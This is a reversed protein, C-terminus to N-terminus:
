AQPGGPRTSAEKQQRIARKATQLGLVGIVLGVVGIGLALYALPGTVGLTNSISTTSNLMNELSNIRQELANLGAQAATDNASTMSRLATVEGRLEALQTQLQSVNGKATSMNSELDNLRQNISAIQTALPDTVTVSTTVSATQLLDSYTVSITKSGASGFSLTTLSTYTELSPVPTSGFYSFYHPSLVEVVVQQSLDYGASVTMTGINYYLDPGTPSLGLTAMVGVTDGTNATSQSLKATLTTGPLVWSRAYEQMNNFYSWLQLLYTGSALNTYLYGYGFGSWACGNDHSAQLVSNFYLRAEICDYASWTFSYDAEFSLGYAYGVSDASITQAAVDRPIAFLLGIGTVAIALWAVIL